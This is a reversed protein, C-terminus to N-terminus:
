TPPPARGARRPEPHRRAPLLGPRSIGSAPTWPPSPGSSAVVLHRVGAGPGPRHSWRCVRHGGVRARVFAAHSTDVSAVMDAEAQNVLQNTLRELRDALPTARALQLERGEAVRGSRILEVVRTSSGSSSTTIPGCVARAARVEDARSSSCGIWTTASSTSSASSPTSAGTRPSSCPPPWVTSSPRRTTNFRRPLRRDQAATERPRGVPSEGRRPGRSRGCRARDASRRHHPVRRPAQHAGRGAIRAVLLPLTRVLARM